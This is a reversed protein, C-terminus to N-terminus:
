RHKLLMAAAALLMVWTLSRNALNLRKITSASGHASELHMTYAVVAGNVATLAMALLFWWPVQGVSQVTLVAIGAAAIITVAMAANRIYRVSKMM